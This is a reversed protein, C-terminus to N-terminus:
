APRVGGALVISEKGGDERVLLFGAPDLGRTVGEIMTGDREFRVRRGSAYSSRKTFAERIAPAGEEVLLACAKDISRLLAILLDERQVNAGALALSTALPAIDPPFETHHVNIGIGAIIAGGDLQAIIGACKKGDIMVDNPWRLDAALGSVGAIAERAALGLALMVLPLADPGLPLRLVISVYLGAGANSHWSHGHRGIGASQEEAGVVTGSACGERAMQAAIIMTSPTSAQWEIRRGPLAARVREVDFLM